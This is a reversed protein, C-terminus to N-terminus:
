TDLMRIKSASDTAVHPLMQLMDSSHVIYAGHSKLCFIQLQEFFYYDRARLKYVITIRTPFTRISYTDLSSKLAVPQRTYLM